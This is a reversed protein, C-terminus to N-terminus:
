YICFFFSQEYVNSNSDPSQLFVEFVISEAKRLNMMHENCMIMCVMYLGYSTDTVVIMQGDIGSFSNM